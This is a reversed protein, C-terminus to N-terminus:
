DRGIGISYGWGRIHSENFVPATFFHFIDFSTMCVPGLNNHLVHGQLSLSVLMRRELGSSKTLLTQWRSTREGSVYAPLM